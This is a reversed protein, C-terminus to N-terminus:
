QKGMIETEIASMVGADQEVTEFLHGYTDFTVQISHHGMWSQVRKPVVRQEIWLSACAHRFDHLTFKGRMVPEGDEDFVQVGGKRIRPVTLGSRHQVPEQFGLVINPHFIPTGQGSPFVLDLSSSPCQLKWKRLEAQLAPLLPITRFGSASKPPGIVNSRDARQDVTLTGKKLDVNRWALGRLESARLGTFLLVMMMPKDSPRSGADGSAVLLKRIEDKTPPVVLKRDRASIKVTVGHAVNQAVYGRREAERILSSLSRLVRKAMAKSAGGDLMSDRFEEIRVRTLQNLRIAGLKPEIYIKCHQRYSALTTPELGEREGRAIWNEAAKTVTISEADPTHIGQRLQWAAETQFAEADRKRDFQKNRRRGSADRYDVVWATRDEGSPTRWERKRISM